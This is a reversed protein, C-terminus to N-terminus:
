DEVFRLHGIGIEDDEWTTDIKDNMKEIVDFLMEYGSIAEARLEEPDCGDLEEETFEYTKLKELLFDAITKFHNIADEYCNIEGSKIVDILEVAFALGDTSVEDGFLELLEEKFIDYNNVHIIMETLTIEMFKKEM